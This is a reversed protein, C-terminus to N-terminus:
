ITAVIYWTLWSWSYLYLGIILQYFHVRTARSWAVLRSCSIRLEAARATVLVGLYLWIVRDEGRIEGSTWFWVVCLYFITERVYICTVEIWVAKKWEISRRLIWGVWEVREDATTVRWRGGDRTLIVSLDERGGFSMSEPIGQGCMQTSKRWCWGSLGVVNREEWQRRKLEM